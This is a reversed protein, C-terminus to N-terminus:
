QDCRSPWAYSISFARGDHLSILRETQHPLVFLRSNTRRAPHTGDVNTCLLGTLRFVVTACDRPPPGLARQYHGRRSASSGIRRARPNNPEEHRKYIRQYVGFSTLRKAEQSAQSCGYM